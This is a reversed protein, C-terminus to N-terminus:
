KRERIAWFSDHYVQKVDPDKELDYRQIILKLATLDNYGALKKVAAIRVDKDPYELLNLLGGLGLVSSHNSIISKVVASNKTDLFVNLVRADRLFGEFPVINKLIEESPLIDMYTLVGIAHAFDARKEWANARVWEVLTYAPETSISKGAVTDFAETLLAPDVSDAMIALLIKESQVDYWRGFSGIDEVRLIGASARILSNLVDPPLDGRDRIISLYTGRLPSLIGREVAASAVPRVNIDGRDALIKLLWLIDDDPIQDRRQIVDDGFVVSLEPNSLILALSSHNKVDDFKMADGILQSLVAQYEELKNSDLALASALRLVMQPNTAYAQRLYSNHAETPLTIDLSQLVAEYSPPMEGPRLTRLWQRAQEASRVLGLRRARDIISKESLARLQASKAEKASKVLIDHALPDDSNVIKELEAARETLSVQPEAIVDIAQRLQENGVVSRHVSLEKQLSSTGTDVNRARIQQVAVLGCLAAILVGGAIKVRPSITAPKEITAVETSATTAKAPAVGGSRVVNSEGEKRILMPDRKTRVPTKEESFIRQRIANVAAVIEEASQYRNEPHPDLCKFIVEEAWIPPVNIFSSIPKVSGLDFEGLGAGPIGDLPYRKTVLRYGLVGLAFVDTAPEAGAGTRQEPAVYHLTEMPPVMATAAAESDFSGMAGVFRIDGPRDVWFSAGCLDGCVIGNAHLKGIIRVAATFRREAEALEINGADIVHGDLPGFVSFAMGASDVGFSLMDTIPPSIQKISTLRSLFRRVADSNRALPHRLIWLCISQGRSKDIAKYADSSRTSMLHGEITFYDAVAGPTHLSQTQQDTTETM